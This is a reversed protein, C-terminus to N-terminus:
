YNLTATVTDTYNGGAVSQGAPIVGDIVWTQLGTLPPVGDYGDGVASAVTAGAGLDVNTAALELRYDLYASGDSMARVTGTANAGNTGANLAFAFNVNQTCDVSITASTGGASSDLDAVAGPDYASAFTIPNAAIDCYANVVVDVAFTTTDTAAEAREGTMMTAALGFSAVVALKKVFMKSVTM